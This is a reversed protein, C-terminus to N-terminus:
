LGLVLAKTGGRKGRFAVLWYGAKVFRVIWSMALRVLPLQDNGFYMESKNVFMTPSGFGGRDIVEQTNDRLRQKIDADQSRRM